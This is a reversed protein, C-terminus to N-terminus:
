GFSCLNDTPWKLERRPVDIEKMSIVKWSVIYNVCKHYNRTDTNIFERSSFLCWLFLHKKKKLAPHGTGLVIVPESYISM